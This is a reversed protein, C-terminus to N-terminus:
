LCSGVRATPGTGNCVVKTSLQVNLELGGLSSQRTEEAMFLAEFIANARLQSVKVVCVVHMAAVTTAQFERCLLGDPRPGPRKYKLRSIRNEGAEVRYPSFRMEHSRRAAM